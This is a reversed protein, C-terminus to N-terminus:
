KDSNLRDRTIANTTAILILKLFLRHAVGGVLSSSHEDAFDAEFRISDQQAM